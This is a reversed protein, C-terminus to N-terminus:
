PSPRVGSSWPAMILALMRRSQLESALLLRGADFEIGYGGDAEIQGLTGEQDVSDIGGATDDHTIACIIHRCDEFTQRRAQDAHFCEARGMM